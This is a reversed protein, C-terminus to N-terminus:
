DQTWLTAPSRGYTFTGGSAGASTLTYTCVIMLKGDVRVFGDAGASASGAPLGSCPASAPSCGHLVSSYFTDLANAMPAGDDGDELNSEAFNGSPADVLVYTFALRDSGDAGENVFLQASANCSVERAHAVMGSGDGWVLSSGQAACVALVDGAANAPYGERYTTHTFGSASSNAVLASAGPQGTIAFDGAPM